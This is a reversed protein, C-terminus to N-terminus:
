CAQFVAKSGRYSFLFGHVVMRLEEISRKDFDHM